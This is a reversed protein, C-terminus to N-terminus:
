RTACHNRGFSTERRWRWNAESTTKFSGSSRRWSKGATPGRRRTGSTSSVAAASSVTAWFTRLEASKAPFSQERREAVLRYQETNGVTEYYDLFAELEEGRAEAALADIRPQLEQFETLARAKEPIRFSSAWLMKGTELALVPGFGACDPEQIANWVWRNRLSETENRQLLHLYLKRLAGQLNKKMPAAHSIEKQTEDNLVTEVWVLADELKEEGGLECFQFAQITLPFEAPNAKALVALRPTAYREDEDSSCADYLAFRARSYDPEEELASLLLDIRPRGTVTLAWLYNERARLESTPASSRSPVPAASEKEPLEQGAANAPSPEEAILGFGAVLLFVLMTLLRGKQFYKSM